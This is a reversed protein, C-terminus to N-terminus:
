EQELEHTHPAIAILRDIAIQLPTVVNEIRVIMSAPPNATHRILVRDARPCFEGVVGQHTLARLVLEIRAVRLQAAAERPQVGLVTGDERRLVVAMRIQPGVVGARQDTLGVARREGPVVSLTVGDLTEFGEEPSHEAFSEGGQSIERVLLRSSGIAPLLERLLDRMRGEFLWHFLKDGYPALLFDFLQPTFIAAIFTCALVVIFSRVLRYRVEDFHGLLTMQNADFVEEEPSQEEVPQEPLSTTGSM